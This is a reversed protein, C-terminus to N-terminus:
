TVIQLDRVVSTLVSRKITVTNDSLKIDSPAHERRMSFGLVVRTCSQLSM